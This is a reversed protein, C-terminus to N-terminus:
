EEPEEDDIVLGTVALRDGPHGSLHGLRMGFSGLGVPTRAGTM